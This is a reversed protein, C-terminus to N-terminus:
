PHIRVRTHANWRAMDSLIVRDNEELGSLIEISDSSIRGLRVEVRSASQGDTALRYFEFRSDERALPPRRVHLAEEIQELLVAGTVRLDPRAGRPLAGILELDVTVTGDVVAPDIRSVRAAVTARHVIVNAPLGPTLERAQAPTIQLRAKLEGARALRALDTGPEVQQGVQVLVQQIVGARGARVNLGALQSLRLDRTAELQELRVEQAELKARARTPEAAVRQQELALRTALEDALIRSQQVQISAVLGEAALREDTSAQLEALMFEARLAATNGERDLRDNELQVRLVALDSVAVAVDAAAQRAALELDPNSLEILVTDAEVAAGPLVLLREVRGSTRAPIWLAAESVLTGRGRVERVMPGRTVRDIWLSDAEVTPIAPQLRSLAFSLSAVGAAAVLAIAWRRTSRGLGHSTRPRDM